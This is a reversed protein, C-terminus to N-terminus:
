FSDEAPQALGHSAPVAAWKALDVLGTKRRGSSVQGSDGRRVFLLQLWGAPLLSRRAYLDIRSPFETRSLHTAKFIFVRQLMATQQAHSASDQAPAHRAWVAVLPLAGSGLGPSSSCRAM